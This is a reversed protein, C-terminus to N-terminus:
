VDTWMPFFYIIFPRIADLINSSSKRSYICYATSTHYQVESNETILFTSIEGCEILL